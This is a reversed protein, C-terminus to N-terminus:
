TTVSTKIRLLLWWGGAFSLYGCLKVKGSETKDGRKLTEEVAALRQTSQKSDLAKHKQM